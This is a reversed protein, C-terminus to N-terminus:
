ASRSERRARRRAALAVAGLAVLSFTGPEPVFFVNSQLSTMGTNRLIVDSLTTGQLQALMSALDPDNEYWFRDGARSRGFQEGLAAAILSGVSSGPMLDECLAGIWPDIDDVNGYLAELAAALTPDSTIEDFGTVVSLGFLERLSNYDPLGHDRGRQINLAALDFGAGPTPEGFLFNRVDDVVHMDIEQQRRSALGALMYELEDSGSTGFGLALTNLNDPVFFADRLPLSGGPASSGDDEVRLLNPSLMTHGVRFFATSFETLVSANRGADYGAYAGLETDFASGLLAPLFENYTIAQIEAGVIKRARQYIEEDTWAPNAAAIEDAIRNHERVFLTHVATLGVQENVRVDGAVYFQTPDPAGGTGNPLGFTNHPLLDGASTWLRGGVGERLALARAESSGYVMSADIYSTIENIQERPNGPGTGTSPDHLSRSFPMIQTGTAMPDFIPDGTPIPIHFPEAPTALGTLDLDHDIFQGWQFVWASLNHTSPFSGSQSALGNSLERPGPRSAGGPTSVGDGYAPDGIRDLLTGAQGWTPNAVNNGSGDYSRDEASSAGPRLALALALLLLLKPAKM